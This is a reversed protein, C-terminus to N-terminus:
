VGAGNLKKGQVQNAYQCLVYKKQEDTLDILQSEFADRVKGRELFPGDQAGLMHHAELYTKFPILGDLIRRDIEAALDRHNEFEGNIPASFAVHVRGKYGMLGTVMSEFDEDETKEYAGEKAKTFLERAKSRACPDIEYSLSVPVLNVEQLWSEIDHDKRYALMLMKLIAPDTIDLGDKSRGERQAIWLSQNSELVHRIYSSTTVLANYKARRSAATRVVIFAGLIRMLEAVFELRALNDGVAILTLPCKSLWLAYNILVSDLVIDRHNSIYVCPQDPELHEGGSYTFGDTTNAVLDEVYRELLHYLDVRRQVSTATRRLQRHAVHELIMPFHTHLRPFKYSCFMRVLGPDEILRNLKTQIEADDYAKIDAFESM